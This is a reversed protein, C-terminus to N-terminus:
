VGLDRDAVLYKIAVATAAGIFMWPACIFFGLATAGLVLTRVIGQEEIFASFGKMLSVVEQAFYIGFVFGILLQGSLPLFFMLIIGLIMAAYAILERPHTKAYDILDQKKLDDFSEFKKKPNRPDQLPKNSSM